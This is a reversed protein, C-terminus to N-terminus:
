ANKKANKKEKLARNQRRLQQAKELRLRRPEDVAELLSRTYRALELKDQEPTGM